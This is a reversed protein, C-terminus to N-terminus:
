HPRNGSGWDIVKQLILVLKNVIALAKNDAQTATKDAIMELAKSIGSLVFNLVVAVLVVVGLLGGNQSVFEKM